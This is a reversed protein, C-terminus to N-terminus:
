HGAPDSTVIELYPMLGSIGLVDQALPPPNRIILRGGDARLQNIVGVLCEYVV